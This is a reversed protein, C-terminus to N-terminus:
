GLATLFLVIAGIALGIAGVLAADLIRSLIRRQVVGPYPTYTDRRFPTYRTSRIASVRM